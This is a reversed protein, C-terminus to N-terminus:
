EPNLEAYRQLVDLCLLKLYHQFDIFIWKYALKDGDRRYIDVVRMETRM